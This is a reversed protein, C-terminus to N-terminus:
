PQKPKLRNRLGELGRRLLSAVAPVTRDIQDAIEHLKLGRCHKLIVVERQAEPLDALANALRLLEENRMATKSPSTQDAPLWAALGSSSRDLEAELSRELDVDRRDRHYHKVFDALTRALVQRLWVTLVEPSRSRLGPLAVVACCRKSFSTAHILSVAFAPICIRM